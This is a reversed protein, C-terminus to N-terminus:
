LKSTKERNSVEVFKIKLDSLVHDMFDQEEKVLNNKTKQQLIDLLDINFRAMDVDVNTKGTGPDPSLGLSLAASSAISMALTLFSAELKPLNKQDTNM